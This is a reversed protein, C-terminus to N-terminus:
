VTLRVSTLVPRVIQVTKAQEDRAVSAALAAAEGGPQAGAKIYAKNSTSLFLKSLVERGSQYLNESSLQAQLLVAGPSLSASSYQARNSSEPNFAQAEFAGQTPTTKSSAAEQNVREGRDSNERKHPDRNPAQGIQERNDKPLSTVFARALVEPSDSFARASKQPDAPAKIVSPPVYVKSEIALVV